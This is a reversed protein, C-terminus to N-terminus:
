CFFTAKMTEYNLSVKLFNQFIVQDQAISPLYFAIYQRIRKSPGQFYEMKKELKKLKEINLDLSYIVTVFKSCLFLM